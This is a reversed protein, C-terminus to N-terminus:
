VEDNKVSLCYHLKFCSGFLLLFPMFLHIYFYKLYGVLTFIYLLCAVVFLIANRSLM